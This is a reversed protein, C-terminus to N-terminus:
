KDSEQFSTGHDNKGMESNSIKLQCGVFEYASYM